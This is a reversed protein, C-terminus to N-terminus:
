VSLMDLANLLSELRQMNSLDERVGISCSLEENWIMSNPERM